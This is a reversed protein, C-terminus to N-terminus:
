FFLAKSPSYTEKFKAINEPCAFDKEEFFKIFDNKNPVFSSASLICMLMSYRFIFDKDFQKCSREIPNVCEFVDKDSIKEFVCNFVMSKSFRTDQMAKIDSLQNSSSAVEKPKQREVL